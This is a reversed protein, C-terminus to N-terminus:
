VIVYRVPAIIVSGGNTFWVGRDRALVEREGEGGGKVM